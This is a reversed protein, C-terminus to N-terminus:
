QMQGWGGRSRQERADVVVVVRECWGGGSEQTLWWWERKRWGGGERTLWWRGRVDVVVVREHWGGGRTDVVVVRESWGSGSKHMLWWGWVEVVVVVVAFMGGSSLEWGTHVVVYWAVCFSFLLLLLSYMIIVVYWAVCFSFLLLLPSYMIIVVDMLVVIVAALMYWCGWWWHSLSPWWHWWWSGGGDWLYVGVVVCCHPCPVCYPCFCLSSLFVTLVPVHCQPCPRPVLSLLSVAHAALAAMCDEKPPLCMLARLAWQCGGTTWKVQLLCTKLWHTSHNAQSGKTPLDM